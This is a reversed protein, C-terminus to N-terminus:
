HHPITMGQVKGWPCDWHHPVVHVYDDETDEGPVTRTIAFWMYKTM